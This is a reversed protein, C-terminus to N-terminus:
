YDTDHGIILEDAGQIRKRLVTYRFCEGCAVRGPNTNIHSAENPREPFQISQAEDLPHARRSAENQGLVLLAAM